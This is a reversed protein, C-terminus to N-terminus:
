SVQNSSALVNLVAISKSKTKAPECHIFAHVMMPAPPIHLSNTHHILSLLARLESVYQAVASFIAQGSVAGWPGELNIIYHHTRRLLGVATRLVKFQLKWNQLQKIGSKSKPESEVFYRAAPYLLFFKTILVQRLSTNFSSCHLFNSAKPEKESEGQPATLFATEYQIEVMKAFTLITSVTELFTEKSLVIGCCQICTRRYLVIKRWSLPGGGPTTLLCM